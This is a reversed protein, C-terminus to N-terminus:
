CQDLRNGDVVSRSVPKTAASPMRTRLTPSWSNAGQRTWYPSDRTGPSNAMGKPTPNLYWDQSRSPGAIPADSDFQSPDEFYLNDFNIRNFNNPYSMESISSTLHPQSLRLLPSLASSHSTRHALQHHNGEEVFERINIYGLCSTPQAPWREKVRELVREAGFAPCPRNSFNHRLTTFLCGLISSLTCRNSHAM